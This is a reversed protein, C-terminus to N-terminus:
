SPRTAANAAGDLRVGMHELGRLNERISPRPMNASAAPSCSPTLGTWRLPSGGIYLRTRYGFMQVALAAAPDAARRELLVQMDGSSGSVGLLGSERTVLRELAGADLRGERALHVIVGPDLDGSRTSMMLGGTPSFGMTTDVSRGDRVAALSAGHGLHGIVCRGLSAAGVTEVIYEYSLGHFGFRLLGERALARPLAFQQAVEPMRRHFATDFCAVQPAEPARARAAEVAALEAPMHLPAFRGLARLEAILADDIREPAAHAVGGFVIRHGVASPAPLGADALSTWAAAVASRVDPLSQVRDQIPRGRADHLWFRGRPTGLDEAAGAALCTEAPGFEYVAFKLSSSGSNLCLIRPPAPVGQVTGRESPLASPARGARRAGDGSDPM